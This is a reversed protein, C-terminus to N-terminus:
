DSDVAHVSGKERRSRIKDDKKKKKKAKSSSSSSSSSRSSSSQRKRGKSRSKGRKGSRSRRSRGRSRERDRQNESARMRMLDRSSFLNSGKADFDRDDRMRGPQLRWEASIKVGDLFVQSDQCADLAAGM